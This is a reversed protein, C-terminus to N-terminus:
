EVDIERDTLVKAFFKKADGFPPFGRSLAAARRPALIM